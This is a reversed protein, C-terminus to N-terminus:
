LAPNAVVTYNNQGLKRVFYPITEELGATLPVSPQWDLLERARTIDPRRQIPDDPPLPRYALPSPSNTMALIKQALENISYEEPNGLNVPTHCGQCNM